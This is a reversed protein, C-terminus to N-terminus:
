RNYSNDGGAGRGGIKNNSGGHMMGGHHGQERDQHHLVVVRKAHLCSISLRHSRHWSPREEEGQPSPIVSTQCIVWRIGVYTDYAM